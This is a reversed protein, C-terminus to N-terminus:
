DKINIHKKIVNLDKSSLYEYLKEAFCVSRHHGGTCGFGINLQSKGEKIYIPIMFDVLDYIKNLFKNSDEFSLIYDQVSQSEGTLEKLEPIWYPNKFCRVDLLIDIGKPTGHKFGFSLCTILLKSENSSEGEFVNKAKDLLDNSALNSTDFVFDSKNKITEVLLREKKLSDILSLKESIQFHHLKKTERYRNILVEDNCDLYILSFDYKMIKLKEITDSLTNFEKESRSDVIFVIKNFEKERIYIPILYAPFNDHCLYGISEFYKTMTSKGAGSMGTIIKIEM